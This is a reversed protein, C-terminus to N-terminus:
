VTELIVPLRAAVQAVSEPALRKASLELFAADADVGLYRRDHTLAAVDRVFVVGEVELRAEHDLRHCPHKTPFALAYARPAAVALPSSHQLCVETSCALLHRTRPALGPADRSVPATLDKATTGFSALLGLVLRAVSGRLASRRAGPRLLPM